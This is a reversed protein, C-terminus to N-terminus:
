EKALSQDSEQKETKVGLAETSQIPAAIILNNNVNETESHLLVESDTVPSALTKPSGDTPSVAAAKKKLKSQRSGISSKRAKPLPPKESKKTENKVDFTIGTVAISVPRPQRPTSRHRLNVSSTVSSTSQQSLSSSPRSSAVRFRNILAFNRALISNM